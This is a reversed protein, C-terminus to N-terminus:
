RRLRALREVAEALARDEAPAGAPPDTEHLARAHERELTVIWRERGGGPLERWLTEIRGTAPDSLAPSLGREHLAALAANWARTPDDEPPQQAVPLQRPACALALLAALKSTKM